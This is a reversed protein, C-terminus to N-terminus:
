RGGAVAGSYISAPEVKRRLPRRLCMMSDSRSNLGKETTVAYRYGCIEVQKAIQANYSGNPCSGKSKM